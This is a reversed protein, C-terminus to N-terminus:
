ELLRASHSHKDGSDLDRLTYVTVPQANYTGTTVCVLLDDGPLWMLSNYQGYSGVHFIHGDSTKVISGGSSVSAVTTQGCQHGGMKIVPPQQQAPAQQVPQAALTSGYSRSAYDNGGSPVKEKLVSVSSAQKDGTTDSYVMVDQTNPKNAELVGAEGTKHWVKPFQQILSDAGHAGVSITLLAIPLYRLLM